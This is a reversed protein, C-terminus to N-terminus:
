ARETDSLANAEFYGVSNAPLLDALSRQPAAQLVAPAVLIWAFVTQLRIM